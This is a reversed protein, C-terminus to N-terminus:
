KRKQGRKRFDVGLGKCHYCMPHVSQCAAALDEPIEVLNQTDGCNYCALPFGCQSSFYLPSLDSGCTSPQVVVTEKLRHDDPFLQHGCSYLMDDQLKEVEQTDTQNLRKQAHILRPKGCSCCHILHRTNEKSLRFPAKQQPKKM